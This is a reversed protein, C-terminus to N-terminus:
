TGISSVLEDKGAKSLLVVLKDAFATYVQKSTIRDFIVKADELLLKDNKVTSQHMTFWNSIVSSWLNSTYLEEM